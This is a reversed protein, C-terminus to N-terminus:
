ESIMRRNPVPTRPGRWPMERLSTKWGDLAGELGLLPVAAADVPEKPPHAGRGTRSDDLVAAALAAALERPALGDPLEGPGVGTFFRSRRRRRVSKWRAIAPPRTYAARAM